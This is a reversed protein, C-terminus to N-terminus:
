KEPTDEQSRIGQILSALADLTTTQLGQQKQMSAKLGEIADDLVTDGNETLKMRALKIKTIRGIQEPTFVENLGKNPDDLTEYSKKLHM